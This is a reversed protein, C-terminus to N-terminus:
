VSNDEMDRFGSINSIAYGLIIVNLVSTTSLGFISHGSFLENMIFGCLLAFIIVSENTAVIKLQQVFTYMFMFLYSLGGIIGTTVFLRLFSNYVGGGVWTTYQTVIARVDGHGHGLIPDSAVAEIAADWIRQRGALYINDIFSPAPLLGMLMLYGISGFVSCTAIIKRFMRGDLMSWTLYVFLATGAALFASRSQTMFLGVGCITVTIQRVYRHQKWVFSGLLGYFLLEGLPNPNRFVSEIIPMRTDIVAAGYRVSVLPLYPGVFAAPIGVIGIVTAVISVLKLFMKSEIAHPAVFLCIVSVPIFIMTRGTRPIFTPDLITHFIFMGYIVLLPALVPIPVSIKSQRLVALLALLSALMLPIVAFFVSFLPLLYQVYLITSVLFVALIILLFQSYLPHTNIDKSIM